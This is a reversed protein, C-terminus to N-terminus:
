IKDTEKITSDQIFESAEYRRIQGTLYHCDEYIFYLQIKRKIEKWRDLFLLVPYFGLLLATLVAAVHFSWDPLIFAEAVVIGCVIVLLVGAKFQRRSVGFLKKEMHSIDRQFESQMSM